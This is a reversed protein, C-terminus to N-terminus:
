KEKGEAEKWQKKERGRERDRIAKIRIKRERGIRWNKKKSERIEGKERNGEM